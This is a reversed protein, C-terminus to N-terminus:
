DCVAQGQWGPEFRSKAAPVVPLALRPCTGATPSRVKRVVGIGTGVGLLRPVLTLIGGEVILRHAKPSITLNQLLALALECEAETAAESGLMEMAARVAGKAILADRCRSQLAANIM